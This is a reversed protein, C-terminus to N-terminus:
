SALPVAAIVDEKLLRGGPGSPKLAAPSIGTEALLRQASPM